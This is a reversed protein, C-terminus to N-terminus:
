SKIKMPKKFRNVVSGAAAFAAPVSGMLGTSSALM